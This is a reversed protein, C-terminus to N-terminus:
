HAFRRRQFNGAEVFLVFLVVGKGPVHWGSLPWSLQDFSQENSRYLGFM